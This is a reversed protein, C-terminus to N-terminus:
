GTSRSIEKACRSCARHIKRNLTMLVGLAYEAVAYPSYQPVRVVPIGRICAAKVNVNNFGACRMAILKVQNSHLHGITEEDLEDNVFACVVDFGQSLAATRARLKTEFYTIDFKYRGNARDFFQRDYPKADFLAIRFKSRNM